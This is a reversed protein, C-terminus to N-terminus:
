KRKIRKKSRTPHIDAMVWKMEDFDGIRLRFTTMEACINTLHSAYFIWRPPYVFGFPGMFSCLNMYDLDIHPPLMFNFLTVHKSEIIPCYGARRNASNTWHDFRVTHNQGIEHKGWVNVEIVHIKSKKHPSPLGYSSDTGFLYSWFFLWLFYNIQANLRFKPSPLTRLIFIIM